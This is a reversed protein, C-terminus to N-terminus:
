PSGGPATATIQQSINGAGSAALGAAQLGQLFPYVQEMYRSATSLGTPAVVVRDGARLRIQEDVLLAKDLDVVYVVPKAFGGRIVAVERRARAPTPGGVSALADALSIDKREIQVANPRLVEGLVYVKKALNDPVYILDQDKLFVNRSVDGGRVMAEFDIPMLKGDRILMATGLDATPQVGGALGLADLITANGTVPFVGPAAVEGLVFFKQSDHRLIEVIVHPDVVFKAVRERLASEFETLSLGIADIEGVIPMHVKGDKRVTTGSIQGLEVRQSSLEPHGLVNINLVDGKGLRYQDKEKTFDYEVQEVKLDGTLLAGAQSSDKVLDELDRLEVDYKEGDRQDYRFRGASCAGVLAAALVAALCRSSMPRSFIAWVGRSVCRAAERPRMSRM